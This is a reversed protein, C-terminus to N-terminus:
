TAPARRDNLLKQGLPRLPRLTPSAPASPIRTLWSRRKRISSTGATPPRTRSCGRECPLFDSKVDFTDGVGAITTLRPSRAQRHLPRRAFLRVRAAARQTRRELGRLDLRPLSVKYPPSSGSLIRTLEQRLNVNIVRPLNAALFNELMPGVVTAAKRSASDASASWKAACSPGDRCPSGSPTSTHSAARSRGGRRGTRFLAHAPLHARRAPQDCAKRPLRLLLQRSRRVASLARRDPLNGAEARRRDRERAPHHGRRPFRRVRTRGYAGVTNDLADVRGFRALASVVMQQAGDPSSKRAAGSCAWLAAASRRFVGTRVGEFEVCTTMDPGRRLMMGKAKHMMMPVTKRPRRPELPRRAVALMRGGHSIVTEEFAPAENRHLRDVLAAGPHRDGTASDPAHSESETVTPQEKSDHSRM